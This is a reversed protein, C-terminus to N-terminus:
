KFRPLTSILLIAVLLVIAIFPMNIAPGIAISSVVLITFSAFMGLAVFMLVLSLFAWALIGFRSESDTIYSASKWALWLMAYMVLICALAVTIELM